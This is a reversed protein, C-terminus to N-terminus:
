LFSVLTGQLCLSSPPKANPSTADAPDGSFAVAAAFAIAFLGCEAGGAQKQVWGVLKINAVCWWFHTHLLALTDNDWTSYVSNNVLLQKGSKGTTACMWHNGSTSSKFPMQLLLRTRRANCSHYSCATIDLFKGRWYGKHLMFASESLMERREIAKKDALTLTIDEVQIWQYSDEMEGSAGDQKRLRVDISTATHMSSPLDADNQSCDQIGM